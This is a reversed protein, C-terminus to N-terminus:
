NDKKATDIGSLHQYKTRASEDPILEKILETLPLKSWRIAQEISYSIPSHPEERRFYTAVQHLQQLAADRDSITSGTIKKSMNM